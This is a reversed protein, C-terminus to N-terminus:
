KAVRKDGKNKYERRRHLTSLMVKDGIDFFDDKERHVNAASAQSVKAMFLNDKAEAVDREIQDIIAKAAGGESSASIDATLSNPVLPPIIRPSRGMRLQFPSFGTSANVSNM